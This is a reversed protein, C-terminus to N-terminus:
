LKMPILLIEYVLWGHSVKKGKVQVDGGISLFFNKVGNESLIGTANNIAWGKVLGSPDYLGDPKRIDFFGNTLRKTEGSLSFVENMKESMEESSIEGANIRSIESTKKYTSFQEDIETFYDFVLDFHKQETFEDVLEVAVTMGMISREQKM